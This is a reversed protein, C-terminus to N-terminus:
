LRRSRPSCRTSSRRWGSDLPPALSKLTNPIGIPPHAWAPHSRPLSEQPRRITASPRSTCASLDASEAPAYAFQPPGVPTANFGQANGLVDSLLRHSFPVSMAWGLSLSEDGFLANPCPWVYLPSIRLFARGLVACAFRM